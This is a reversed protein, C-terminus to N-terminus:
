QTFLKLWQQYNPTKTVDLIESFYDTKKEEPLNLWVDNERGLGLLQKNQQNIFASSTAYEIQKIIKQKLYSLKEVKLKLENNKIEANKLTKYQNKINLFTSIIVTFGAIIIFIKRIKNM